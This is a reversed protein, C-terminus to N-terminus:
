SNINVILAVIAIVLGFVNGGVLLVALRGLLKIQGNLVAQEDLKGESAELKADVTGRWKLHEAMMAESGPLKVEGAVIANIRGMFRELSDKVTGLGTDLADFRLKNLEAQHTQNLEVRAVTGALSTVQGALAEHSQEIRDMRRSLDQSSGPRPASADEPATM